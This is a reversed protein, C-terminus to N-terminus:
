GVSLEFALTEGSSDEEAAAVRVVAGQSETLEFFFELAYGLADVYAGRARCLEPVGRFVILASRADSRPVSMTGTARFALRYAVPAWRAVKPPTLGFTAIMGRVIARWLPSEFALRMTDHVMARLAEPGGRELAAETMDLLLGVSLWRLAPLAPVADAEARFAGLVAGRVEPDARELARLGLALFHARVAPEARVADLPSHTAM